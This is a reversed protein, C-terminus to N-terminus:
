LIQKKFIEIIFIEEWVQSSMLIIHKIMSDIIQFKHFISYKFNM